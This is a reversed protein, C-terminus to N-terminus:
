RAFGYILSDNASRTTTVHARSPFLERVEEDTRYVLQWDGFWDKCFASPEGTRYNTLALVGGPAVHDYLSEAMARGKDASLYDFLGSCIVVDHKTGNTAEGLRSIPACLSRVRGAWPALTVRRAYEVAAADQDIVTVDVRSDDPLAVLFDRLYRAGGCAVDLVSLQGDKRDYEERLLRHLRHRREWLSQVSHITSVAYDICNVLAPQTPDEGPEAELAYMLEIVRYDGTYGYPKFFSRYMSQSRWLVPGVVELLARRAEPLSASERGDVTQEVACVLKWFEAAFEQRVERAPVTVGIRRLQKELSTAYEVFEQGSTRLTDFAVQTSLMTM